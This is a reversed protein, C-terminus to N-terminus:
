PTATPERLAEQLLTRRDNGKVTSVASRLGKSDGVIGVFESARTVATYILARSLMYSHASHVPLLICPCQSGQFKHITLAYALRLERADEKAYAVLKEGYDVVLVFSKPANPRDLNSPKHRPVQGASIQGAGIVTGVEGNFVGLVKNNKTHIVRDNVRAQGGDGIWIGGAGPNVIEQIQGNLKSAGLPGKNQPTLVQVENFAFARRGRDNPGLMGVTALQVLLDAANEASEMEAFAIGNGRDQFSPVEGALIERSAWPIPSESAQRFIKTLETTPVTGSEILDRLVSGPGISPLQNADGCIVVRTDPALQAFLRHALPLDVMSFEDVIITAYDLPKTEGTEFDVAAALASHITRAPLGTQETIRKAAKGTPACLLIPHESQEIIAKITHTKGVGPGGTCVTLSYQAATDVARQQEESLSSSQLSQNPAERVHERILRALEIEVSELTRVFIKDDRAYVFGGHELSIRLDEASVPIAREIERSIPEWSSGSLL